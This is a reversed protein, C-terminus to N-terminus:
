VQPIDTTDEEETDQEDYDGNKVEKIAVYMRRVSEVSEELVISPFDFILELIKTFTM